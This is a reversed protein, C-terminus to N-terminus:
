RSSAVPPVVVTFMAGDALLEGRRKNNGGEIGWGKFDSWDLSQPLKSLNENSIEFDNIRQRSFKANDNFKRKTSDIAGNEGRLAQIPVGVPDDQTPFVSTASVLDQGNQTIPLTDTDTAPSIAPRSTTTRHISRKVSFSVSNPFPAPLFGQSFNNTSDDRAILFPGM